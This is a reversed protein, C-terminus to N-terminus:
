RVGGSSRRWAQVRPGGLADVMQELARAERRRVTMSSVGVTKAVKEYSTPGNGYLYFLLQKQEQGLTGFARKIDVMTALGNGGESPSTKHKVEETVENGTNFAEGLFMAPLMDQVHAATYVAFDSYHSGTRQMMDQRIYGVVVHYVANRLKRDYKSGSDRWKRILDVNELVWVWAEQWCDDLSVAGNSLNCGRNVGERIAKIEADTFEDYM